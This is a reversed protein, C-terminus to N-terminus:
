RDDRTRGQEGRRREADAIAKEIQNLACRRPGLHLTGHPRGVAPPDSEHAPAVALRQVDHVGVAAAQPDNRADLPEGSRRPRGVPPPDGELAPAVAM